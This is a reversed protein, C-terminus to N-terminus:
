VLKLITGYKRVWISMVERHSPENFTYEYTTPPITFRGQKDTLDFEESSARAMVGEIPQNTKKDILQGSIASTAYIVKKQCGMLAIPILAILSLCIIKQNM